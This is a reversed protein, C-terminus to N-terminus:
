AIDMENHVRQWFAPHILFQKRGTAGGVPLDQNTRKCPRWASSGVPNDM